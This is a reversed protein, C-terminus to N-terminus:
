AADLEANVQALMEQAVHVYHTPQEFTGSTSMAMRLVLQGVPVGPVSLHSTAVILRRLAGDAGEADTHCLVIHFRSEEFRFLVDSLRFIGQLEEGLARLAVDALAVPGGVGGPPAPLDWRADIAMLTTGVGYRHGRRLEVPLVFDFQRRGWLGTVPDAHQQERAEGMAAALASEATQLRTDDEVTAICLTQGGDEVKRLRLRVDVRREATELHWSLSLDLPQEEDDMAAHFAGGLEPVEGGPIVDVFFNGGRADAPLWGHLAPEGGGHALVTGDRDLVFAATPWAALLTGWPLDATSVLPHM